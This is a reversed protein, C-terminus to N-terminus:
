IFHGQLKQSCDSYDKSKYYYYYYYYYYYFFIHYLLLSIFLLYRYCCYVFM